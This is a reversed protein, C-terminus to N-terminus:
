HELDIYIDDLRELLAIDKELQILEKEYREKRHLKGITDLVTMHTMLQYEANVTDWRLNLGQLISSREEPLMRRKSANKAAEREAELKM